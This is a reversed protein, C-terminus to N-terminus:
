QEFNALKLFNDYAHRAENLFTGLIFHYNFSCGNGSRPKVIEKLMKVNWGTIEVESTEILERRCEKLSVYLRIEDGILGKLLMEKM